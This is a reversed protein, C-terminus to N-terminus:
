TRIEPDAAVGKASGKDNEIVIEIVMAAAVAAEIEVNEEIVIENVNEIEIM